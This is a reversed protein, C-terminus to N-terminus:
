YIPSGSPTNSDVEKKFSAIYDNIFFVSSKPESLWSLGIEKDTLYEISPWHGYMDHDSVRRIGFDLNYAKYKMHDYDFQVLVHRYDPSADSINEYILATSETSSWIVRHDTDRYRRSTRSENNIASHIRGWVNKDTVAVSYGWRGENDVSHILSMRGSPSVFSRTSNACGAIALFLIPTLFRM